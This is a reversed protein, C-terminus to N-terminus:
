LQPETELKLQAWENMYHNAINYAQIKLSEAKERLPKAGLSAPYIVQRIWDDYFFAIEQATKIIPTKGKFEIERHAVYGGRFDNIGKWFEKFGKEDLSTNKYLGNRFSDM